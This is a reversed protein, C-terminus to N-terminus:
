LEKGKAGGGGCGGGGGDGGGGGGGGSRWARVCMPLVFSAASAADIHGNDRTRCVAQWLCDAWPVNCSGDLPAGLSCMILLGGPVLEAARHALITRYDRRGHAAMAAREEPTGYLHLAHGAVGPCPTSMWHFATSSFGYHVSASPLCQEYFSRGMAAGHVGAFLRQYSGADDALVRFLSTWDNGPLDTHTVLVPAAAVAPQARLAGLLTAMARM